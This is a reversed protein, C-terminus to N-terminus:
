AIGGGDVVLAAGTIWSALDSALFLGANAIDEPQGIRALPRSSGCDALYADMHGDGATVAGTQRGEDRLM